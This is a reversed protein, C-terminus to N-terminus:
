IQQQDELYHEFTNSFPHRHHPHHHGNNDDNNNYHQGRGPMLDVQPLLLLDDENNTGTTEDNDDHFPKHFRGDESRIWPWASDDKACQEAIDFASILGVFEHTHSDVVIAHHQRTTAILRAAQDRSQTDNCTALQPPDSCSPPPLLDAITHEDPSWGKEYAELFDTKTLIGAPWSPSPDDNRLVVVSGIGHKSLLELATRISDTPRVTFVKDAPTM